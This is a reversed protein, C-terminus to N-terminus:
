IHVIYKYNDGRIVQRTIHLPAETDDFVHDYSLMAATGQPVQLLRAEESTVFCVEFSKEASTPYIHYKRRLIAYLSGELNEELLFSFKLPFCTTEVITPTEDLYRVRKIQLVNAGNELSFFAQEGASAPAAGMSIVKTTTQKGQLESMETFGVFEKINREIKQRAVFTGKGQMKLLIGEDALQSVANRVTIRSIKYQDSLEKESPLKDGSKLKGQAIDECIINILQRYLPTSDNCNLGM